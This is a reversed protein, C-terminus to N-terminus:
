IESCKFDELGRVHDCSGMQITVAEYSIFIDFDINIERTRSGKWLFSEPIESVLALDFSQMKQMWGDIHKNENSFIKLIQLKILYSGLTWHGSTKEWKHFFKFNPRKRRATCCLIQNIQSSNQFKSRKRGLSSCATGSGKAIGITKSNERASGRTLLQFLVIVPFIRSM